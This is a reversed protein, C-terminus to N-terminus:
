VRDPRHALREDLRRRCASPAPGGRRDRRAVHGILAARRIGAGVREAGLEAVRHQPDFDHPALRRDDDIACADELDHM